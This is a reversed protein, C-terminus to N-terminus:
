KDIVGVVLGKCKLMSCQGCSGWGSSLGMANRRCQGDLIIEVSRGCGVERIEVCSDGSSMEVEPGKEGWGVDFRLVYGLGM